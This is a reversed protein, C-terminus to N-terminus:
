EISELIRELKIRRSAKMIILENEPCNTLIDIATRKPDSLDQNIFIKGPDLGFDIAGQAINAIKNGFLFLNNFNYQAILQGIEYHIQECFSGLELMDGLVLSKSQYQVLESANKICAIVSEPSANYLDLLFYRKQKFFARQRTNETSIKSIGNQIEKDTLGLYYAVSAAPALCEINSKEITAFESTCIRSGKYFLSVNNNEYSLLFDSLPEATSFTTKEKIECLLKEDYPVFVTGGNIGSLIELKANAIAERSGLNGIHARGINTIIAMDPHLYKALRGIEGSHNMGLEMLLIQSNKPASLLSLSLGLANNYSSPNSHVIFRESLIIKAFEKTTTKGVSGTIGIIYLIFPLTKIYDSAIQLMAEVTDPVCICGNSSKKSLAFAGIRTVNDIYNEGSDNEGDIAIFLDGPCCERSDTTINSFSIKGDLDSIGKTAKIISEVSINTDLKIRM